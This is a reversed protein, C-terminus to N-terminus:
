HLKGPYALKFALAASGDIRLIVFDKFPTIWQWQRDRHPGVNHECWAEVWEVTAMDVVIAFEESPVIKFIAM